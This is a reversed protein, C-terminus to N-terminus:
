VRVVDVQGLLKGGPLHEAVDVPWMAAQARECRM